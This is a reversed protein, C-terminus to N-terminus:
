VVSVVNHVLAVGFNTCLSLEWEYIELIEAEPGEVAHVTESGLLFAVSM